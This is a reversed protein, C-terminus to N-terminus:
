KPIELYFTAGQGTQSEAWAKGGMREMAKRVIALGVGTGPYEESPNLRRFIDFIRDHFKMDFGVGNDRVWLVCNEPTETSGIEIRAHPVNRTFKIANDIYNNLAQSLGNEDGRVAGGNVNIVFEIDRNTTKLERRKQQVAANVLTSLEIRDTKLECRELRSYDLLDEILQSMEHTSNYITEVFMQGEDNLSDKHDELLLRSYGDIGRLPAKLDHAVSYTFIELERSKANLAATRKAIRQELEANLQDLAEKARQRRKREFLLLGIFMSQLALLTLAIIIRGRYLEWFSAQKFRVISGPPLQQESIAWRQLQRYDFMPIGPIGHPAISEPKEGRLVRLGLEAGGVGLAEFSTLRGGVIGLGLHADSTGYIPARSVPSIERLVEGNGYNNGASDQTSSLFFVITQAPLSALSSKQDSPNLGVLYSIEVKGQLERFDEQVRSRWYNDWESVGSIVVVRKTGPQMVLALELNSRYNSEGWVGTVNSGLNLGDLNAHDLVMFVIPTNPFLSARNRLLLKLAPSNVVLILDLKKHAYKKQLQVTLEQEYDELPTRVADLYESYVELPVTAGSVLTSRIGQEMIVQGPQDSQHTFLLLIRQRQGTDQAVASSACLMWIALLSIPCLSARLTLQRAEM